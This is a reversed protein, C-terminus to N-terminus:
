KAQTEVISDVVFDKGKLDAKAKKSQLRKVIRKRGDKLKQRRENILRKISKNFIKM